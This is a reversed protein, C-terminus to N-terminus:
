VNARFSGGGGKKRDRHESRTKMVQPGQKSKWSKHARTNTDEDM